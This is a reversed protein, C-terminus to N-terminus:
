NRLITTFGEVFGNGNTSSIIAPWWIKVTATTLIYSSNSLVVYGGFKALPRPTITGLENFYLTTQTTAGLIQSTPLPIRLSSSATSSIDLTQLDANVKTLIGTAETRCVVDRVANLGLPIMGIMPIICFALIGIAIVVELLSFGGRNKM